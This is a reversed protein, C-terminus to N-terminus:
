AKYLGSINEKYERPTMCYIRKFARNFTSQSSFGSNCCINTISDNTTRILGAAYEARILALYNPLSIKIKESFTRSIYFRSVSFGRALSELTIDERFNQGIYTIIKQTLDAVPTGMKHTLTIKKMLRTMIVLTWALQESFDTCKSLERFALATTEDVDGIVPCSPSFDNLDPFLGRFLEQSVIAFIQETPRQENRFYTHVVNPFIVAAQGAQIEYDTGDINIHQGLEYVFILEIQKHIHSRYKLERHNLIINIDSQRFEYFPLM